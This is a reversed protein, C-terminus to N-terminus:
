VEDKKEAGQRDGCFARSAREDPWARSRGGPSPVLLPGPLQQWTVRCSARLDRGPPVRRGTEPTRTWAGPSARDESSMQRSGQLSAYGALRARPSNRCRGPLLRGQDEAFSAGQINAINRVCTLHK